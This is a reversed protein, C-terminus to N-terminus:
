WKLQSKIKKCFTIFLKQLLTKKLNRWRCRYYFHLSKTRREKRMRCRVFTSSKATIIEGILFLKSIVLKQLFKAEVSFITFVPKRTWTAPRVKFNWHTRSSPWSESTRSWCNRTANPKIVDWTNSNSNFTPRPTISDEVRSKQRRTSWTRHLHYPLRSSAPSIIEILPPAPTHPLVPDPRPRNTRFNFKYSFETFIPRETPLPFTLVTPRCYGNPWMGCCHVFPEKVPEFRRRLPKPFNWTCNPSIGAIVYEDM